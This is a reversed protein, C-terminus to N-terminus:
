GRNGLDGVRRDVAGAAVVDEAGGVAGGGAVTEPFPAETEGLEGRRRGGGRGVWGRRAQCGARRGGECGLFPEGGAEEGEDLVVVDAAEVHM